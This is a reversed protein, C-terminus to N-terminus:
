TGGGAYGTVADAGWRRRVSEPTRHFWQVVSNRPVVGGAVFGHFSWPSCEFALLSNSHPPVVATPESPDDTGSRYLGTCNGHRHEWRPNALYYLVAVARVTGVPVAVPDLRRGTTYEM